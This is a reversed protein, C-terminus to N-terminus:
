IPRIGGTMQKVTESSRIHCARAVVAVDSQDPVDTDITPQWSAGGDASRPIGGVHVNVLLVAGDCTMTM